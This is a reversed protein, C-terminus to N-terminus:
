AGFQSAGARGEVRRLAALDIEPHHHKMVAEGSPYEKRPRRLIATRWLRHTIPHISWSHYYGLVDDWTVVGKYSTAGGSFDTDVAVREGPNLFGGLNPGAFGAVYEDCCVVCFGVGRAVGAGANLILLQIGTSRTWLQARLDPLRRVRWQRYNLRVAM